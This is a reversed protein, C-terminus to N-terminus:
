DSAESKTGQVEQTIGGLHMTGSGKGGKHRYGGGLLDAGLGGLGMGLHAPLRARGITGAGADVALDYKVGVPTPEM